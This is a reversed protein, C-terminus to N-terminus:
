QKELMELRHTNNEVIAEVRALRASHNNIDSQMTRLEVRIDSIGANATNMGTKIEALAAADQKTDKKANLILGLAAVVLAGISILVTTEM